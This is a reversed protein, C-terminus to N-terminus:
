DVPRFGLSDYLARAATATNDVRLGVRSHCASLVARVLDRGTGRRRADPVVFLDVIFPGPPVDDWPADVVTLVAGVLDGAVWAGFSQETAASGYDGRWWAEVDAVADDVSMEEPTGLYTRWYAEGVAHLDSELLARRTIGAAVAPAPALSPDAVM